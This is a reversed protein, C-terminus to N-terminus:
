GRYAVRHGVRVRGLCRGRQDIRPDAVVGADIRGLRHAPQEIDVQRRRAGILPQAGAGPAAHLRAASRSIGTRSIMPALLRKPMTAATSRTDSATSAPSNKASSPGEPQPLVVKNRSIAPKSVGSWPRTTM